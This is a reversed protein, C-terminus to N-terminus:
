SFFASFLSDQEPNHVVYGIAIKGKTISIFEDALKRTFAGCLEIAGYGEGALELVKLKAEEPNKVTYLCSIFKKTEFCVQDQETNFDSGMLLFAYKKKM